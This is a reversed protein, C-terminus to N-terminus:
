QNLLDDYYTANNHRCYTSKNVDEGVAEEEEEEARSNDNKTRKTQLNFNYPIFHTNLCSYKRINPRLNFLRSYNKGVQLQPDRYRSM